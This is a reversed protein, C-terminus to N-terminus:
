LAVIKSAPGEIIRNDIKFVARVIYCVETQKKQKYMDLFEPKKIIKKNIPKKPVFATRSFKYVNYGLLETKKIDNKIPKWTLLTKTLLTKNHIKLNRVSPLTLKNIKTLVKEKDFVLFNNNKRGCGFTLIAFLPVIAWTPIFIIKFFKNKM